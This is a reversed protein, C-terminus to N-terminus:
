RAGSRDDLEAHSPSFKEAAKAAQDANMGMADGAICLRGRPLFHATLRTSSLGGFGPVACPSVWDDGGTEHDM